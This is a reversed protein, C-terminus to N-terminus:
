TEGRAKKLEEILTSKKKRRDLEIGYLRGIEELEKKSFAEYPPTIETKFINDIGQFIEDLKKEFWDFM